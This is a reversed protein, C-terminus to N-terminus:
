NQDISMGRRTRAFDEVELDGKGGTAHAPHLMKFPLDAVLNGGIAGCNLTVQVSYSIVIGLADNPNQGQSLLTSSALNADSDKVNGDLAVGHLNKNTRSNPSLTVSKSLNSGPTIPCGEKSEVGAVERTFHSNTMTVEVHQVVKCAISKVTKRSGNTITLNASVQDGHYYIDKELTVELNLKGSSLAFGKSVLTSPQRTGREVPAYQVKRVALTVSNRKHLQESASDAVFVRLEYLVGLPKAAADNQLVVSAPALEPLTVFFPHANAGLKKVLRDQVENVQEDSTPFIQQSTLEMEKSFSLGMVEDEERGFRYVVVVQAFVKRGRLYDNDVLVVGDVPETGKTNDVFDRRGLYVTLKGNPATKKFVKVANVM